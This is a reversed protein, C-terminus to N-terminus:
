KLTKLFVKIINDNLKAVASHTAKNQDIWIDEWPENKYRSNKRTTIKGGSKYPTGFRRRNIYYLIPNVNLNKAYLDLMQGEMTRQHLAWATALNKWEEPHVTQIWENMDTYNAQQAPTLSTWEKYLDEGVRNNWAAEGAQNLKNLDQQYFLNNMKQTDNNWKNRWERALNQLSQATQAYWSAQNQALNYNVGALRARFDNEANAYLQNQQNATQVNQLERQMAAQSQQRAAQNLGEFGQAQLGLQASNNIVADSNTPTTPGRRIYDSYRQWLADEYPTATSIGQLLPVTQKYLSSKLGKDISEKVKRRGWAMTGYDFAALGSGIFNTWAPASNTNPDGFSRQITNVMTQDPTTGGPQMKKITGGNKFLVLNLEDFLKELAAQKDKQYRPKKSGWNKEVAIRLAEKFKDQNDFVQQDFNKDQATLNRLTTMPDKSEKIAKLNKALIRADEKAKKANLEKHNKSREIRNKIELDEAKRTSRNFGRETKSTPRIGFEMLANQIKESKSGRLSLLINERRDKPLAKLLDSIQKQDARGFLSVIQQDSLSGMAEQVNIEKAEPAKGIYGTENPRKMTLIRETPNKVYPTRVGPNKMIKEAIAEETPVKNVKIVEEPEENIRALKGFDTDIEGLRARAEAYGRALPSTAKVKPTKTGVIEIEEHPNRIVKARSKDLTTILDNLKPRVSNDNMYKDIYERRAFERKALPDTVLDALYGYKSYSEVKEPQRESAVTRRGKFIGKHTTNFGFLRLLENPNSLQDESVNYKSKLIEKLTEGPNKNDSATIKSIDGDDLKIPSANKAKGIRMSNEYVIKEPGNVKRITSIEHALASEGSKQYTRHGIGIVAQLGASLKLLDDTNWDKPNKKIVSAAEALGLISFAKGLPVAVRTLSKGIKAIKGTEGLYPLISVIDLGTALAAQGWDTADLHGKRDHAASMFLGTSGLGTVAGGVSGWPGTLGALAGAVDIAAASIEKKDAPTLTEWVNSASALPSEQLEQKTQTIPAAVTRGGYQYVPLPRPSIKGGKAKKAASPKYRKIDQELNPINLTRLKDEIGNLALLKRKQDETLYAWEKALGEWVGAIVQLNSYRLRNYIASFEANNLPRRGEINGYLMQNHNPSHDESSMIWEVLDSNLPVLKGDGKRAYFNGERDELIQYPTNDHEDAGWVNTLLGYEKNDFVNDWGTFMNTGVPNKGSDSYSISSHRYNEPNETTAKLNGNEDFILYFPKRFGHQNEGTKNFDYVEYVTDGNTNYRATQNSLAYNGEGLEKRLASGILYDKYSLKKNPDLINNRYSSQRNYDVYNNQESDTYNLLPSIKDFVYQSSTASNNERTVDEMRRKLWENQAFEEPKWIRNNWVVADLFSDDLGEFLGLREPTILYPRDQESPATTYIAGNEYGNKGDGKFILYRGNKTVGTKVKGNEDVINTYVSPEESSTASTSTSDSALKIGFADLWDLDEYANPNKYGTWSPDQLRSFLADAFAQPTWEGEFGETPHTKAFEYANKLAESYTYESNEPDNLGAIVDAVRKVAALNNQHTASWIKHGKKNPDDNYDLYITPTAFAKKEKSKNSTPDSYIFGRATYIADSFRNRRTNFTDDWFKTWESRKGARKESMGEPLVSVTNGNGFEVDEGNRLAKLWQEYFEGQNINQTKAYNAFAKYVEESNGYNIGDIILNGYKSKNEPIKDGPQAKIISGNKLKKIQSM